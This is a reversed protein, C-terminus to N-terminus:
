AAAAAALGCNGKEGYGCKPANALRRGCPSDGKSAPDEGDEDAARLSAALMCCKEGSLFSCKDGSVIPVAELDNLKEDAKLLSSLMLFSGSEEAMDSPSRDFSLSWLSSPTLLSDSFSFSPVRARLLFFSSGGPLGLPSNDSGSFVPLTGRTSTVDEGGSSFFCSFLM